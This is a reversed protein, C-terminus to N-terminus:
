RIKLFGDTIILIRVTTPRMWYKIYGDSYKIKREKSVELDKM